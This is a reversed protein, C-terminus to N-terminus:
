DIPDYWPEKGKFKERLAKQKLNYEEEMEAYRDMHHKKERLYFEEENFPINEDSSCSM